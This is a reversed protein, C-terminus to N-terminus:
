SFLKRKPIIIQLSWYLAMQDNILKCPINENIYILLGGDHKNRDRRFNKYNSIKFQQKPSSEDIKTESLLCTDINNTILEQVVVGIKNRLSNVNLAGITVNKANQLRHARASPSVDNEVREEDSNNRSLSKISDVTPNVSRGTNCSGKKNVRKAIACEEKETKNRGGMCTEDRWANMSFCFNNVPRTTSYENLHIGTKNLM